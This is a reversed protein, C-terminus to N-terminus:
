VAASGEQSYQCEHQELDHEPAFEANLNARGPIARAAFYSPPRGQLLMVAQAERHLPRSLVHISTKHDAAWNRRCRIRADIQM